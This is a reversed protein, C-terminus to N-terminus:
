AAYAGDVGYDVLRELGEIFADVSEVALFVAKDGNDIKIRRTPQGNRSGRKVDVSLTLDKFGRPNGVEVAAIPTTLSETYIVNLTM